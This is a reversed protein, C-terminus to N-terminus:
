LSDLWDSIGYSAKARHIVNQRSSAKPLNKNLQEVAKPWVTPLSPSGRFCAGLKALLRPWLQQCLQAEKGVAKNLPNALLKV